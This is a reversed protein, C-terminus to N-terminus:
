KTLVATDGKALTGRLTNSAIQAISYSEQVTSVQGSAIASDGRTISFTQGAQVGQASGVNLVVFANRAGVSVVEGKISPLTAAPQGETQGAATTNAIKAVTSGSTSELEAVRAELTTIKSKYGEIEEPTAASAALKAQALERKLDSIESNLAKEADDKATLQNRLQKNDRDLLTNRSDSATIKSKAEGLDSDLTVVQKQLAEGQATAKNLKDQLETSRTEAKAVEQQLQEKTNGIEFYFYTSAASGLIAIVCLVLTLSKM